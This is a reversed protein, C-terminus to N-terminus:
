PSNYSTMQAVGDARENVTTYLSDASQSDSALLAIVQEELDLASLGSRDSAFSACSAKLWQRDFTAEVQHGNIGNM